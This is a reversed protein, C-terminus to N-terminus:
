AMNEDSEARRAIERAVRQFRVGGSQGRECLLALVGVLEPVSMGSMMAESM